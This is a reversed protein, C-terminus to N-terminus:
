RKRHMGTGIISSSNKPAGPAIGGLKFSKPPVVAKNVISADRTQNVKFVSSPGAKMAAPFENKAGTLSGKSNPKAFAANTALLGFYIM